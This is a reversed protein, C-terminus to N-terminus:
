GARFDASWNDRRDPHELSAQLREIYELRPMDEAGLSRLHRSPIQCDILDFDWEVLQRCLAALAVKSADPELSFMSEGFFMRGLSLGYIGGVLRGDLRSEVSHAYGQQHLRVYALRMEDTIWSSERGPLPNHACHDVVEEFALDAGIQFRGQRITRALRRSVHLRDPHLVSRPDPSWWLLLSDDNFWPFIGQRYAQLLRESTLDGGVALLGDSQSLEVPPFVIESSLRFVPM